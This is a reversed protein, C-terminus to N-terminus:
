DDVGKTGDTNYSFPFLSCLPAKALAVVIPTLPLPLPAYHTIYDIVFKQEVFFTELHFIGVGQGGQDWHSM